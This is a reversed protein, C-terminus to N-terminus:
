VIRIVAVCASCHLADRVTNAYRSDRLDVERVEIGHFGGHGHLGNVVRVHEQTNAEKATFVNQENRQTAHRNPPFVSLPANNVVTKM